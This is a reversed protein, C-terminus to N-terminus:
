TQIKCYYIIGCLQWKRRLITLVNVWLLKRLPESLLSDVQLAPSTSWERTPFIGQLLSHCDVGPNKGPLDGHVSSGPLSCDVPDWLAPCASRSLVACRMTNNVAPVLGWMCGRSGTVKYSLPPARHGVDGWEGVGWGSAAVM